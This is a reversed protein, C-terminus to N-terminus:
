HSTYDSSEWEGDTFRQAPGDWRLPLDGITGGRNKRILLIAKTPDALDDYIVHRYVFCITDADQELQGSERLDSIIPKHDAREECKRNLQSIAIVCVNMSKALRKLSRSIDAVAQERSGHRGNAKLLQLYDVVILGLPARAAVWRARAELDRM